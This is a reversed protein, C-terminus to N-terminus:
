PILGLSVGLQVVGCILLAIALWLILGLPVGYVLATFAGLPDDSDAEVWKM